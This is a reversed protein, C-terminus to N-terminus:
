SVTEVDHSSLTLPHSKRCGCTAGDPLGCAYGDNRAGQPRCACRTFPAGIRHEPEGPSAISTGRSASIPDFTGKQSTRSSTSVRSVSLGANLTGVFHASRRPESSSLPSNPRRHSNKTAERPSHGLQRSSSGSSRAGRRSNRRNGAILTWCGDALRDLGM